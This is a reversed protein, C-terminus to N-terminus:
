SLGLQHQEGVEPNMPGPKREKVRRRWPPVVTMELGEEVAAEPAGCAYVCVCVLSLSLERGPSWTEGPGRASDQLPTLQAVPTVVAPWTGQPRPRAVGAALEM